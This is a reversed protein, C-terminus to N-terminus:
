FFGRPVNVVVKKEKLKEKQKKLARSV